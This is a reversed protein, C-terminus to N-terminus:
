PIYVRMTGRYNDIDYVIEALREACKRRYEPDPIVRKLNGITVVPFSNPTMLTRIAFELSKEKDDNTRNGTLLLYGKDQCLKWVMEDAASVPLDIDHFWILKMPSLELWTDDDRLLDFLAKAQGECNHDSLVVQM